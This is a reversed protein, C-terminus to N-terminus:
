PELAEGDELPEAERYARKARLSDHGRASGLRASANDQAASRRFPAMGSPRTLAKGLQRGLSEAWGLPLDAVRM